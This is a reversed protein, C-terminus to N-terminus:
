HSRFDVVLRPPDDLMGARFDVQDVVGVAWTLVGEFGGVRVLEKVEPTGPSFRKPGTYTLPVSAQSLDADLAPEMRVVVVRGGAVTVEAGSGDALVPKEVYGIRYGPVSNRFEFVVRDFGEHRAARVGTLLSTEGSTAPVSVTTTSAGAMGDTVATTTPGSESGVPLVDDGGGCGALVCAMAGAVLLHTAVRSVSAPTYVLPSPRRFRRPMVEVPPM